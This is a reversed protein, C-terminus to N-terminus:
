KPEGCDFCTKIHVFYNGENYLKVQDKIDDPKKYKSPYFYTRKVPKVERCFDCVAKEIDGM